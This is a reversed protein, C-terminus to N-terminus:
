HMVVPLANILVGPRWILQEIPVALGLRPFRVLLTGLAIAPLLSGFDAAEPWCKGSASSARAPV